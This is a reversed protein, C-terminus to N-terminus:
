LNKNAYSNVCFACGSSYALSIMSFFYAYGSFYTILESREASHEPAPFHLLLRFTGTLAPPNPRGPLFSLTGKEMDSPSLVGVQVDM